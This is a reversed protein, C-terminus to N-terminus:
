NFAFAWLQWEASREQGRVQGIIAAGELGEGSAEREALIKRLRERREMQVCHTHQTNHTTHAIPSCLSHTALTSVTLM